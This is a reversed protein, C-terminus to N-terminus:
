CNSTQAPTEGGFSARPKLMFMNTLVPNMTGLYSHDAWVEFLNTKWTPFVEIYLKFFKECVWITSCWFFLPRSIVLGFLASLSIGGFWRVNATNKSWGSISIYNIYHGRFFPRKEPHWGDMRTRWRPRGRSPGSSKGAATIATGGTRRAPCLGYPTMRSLSLHYTKWSVDKM